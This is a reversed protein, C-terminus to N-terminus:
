YDNCKNRSPPFDSVAVEYAIKDIDIGLLQCLNNELGEEEDGVNRLRSSYGGFEDQFTIV